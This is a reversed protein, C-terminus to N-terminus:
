ETTEIVVLGPFAENVLEMTIAPYLSTLKHDKIAIMLAADNKDISELFEVYLQERKIQTLTEHGGKLFLYLKRMEHYLNGQMDVHEPVKYPVEGEPLDWEIGPNFNLHLILKLTQNGEHERLISVRNRKYAKSVLNLIESIGLTM